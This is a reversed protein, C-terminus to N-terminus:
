LVLQADAQGLTPPKPTFFRAQGSWPGIGPPLVARARWRYPSDFGLTVPLQFQTTDITDTRVLAGADDTLEIEYFFTCARRVSRGCSRARFDAAREFHHRQQHAFHAQARHGESEFWGSGECLHQCALAGADVAHVGLVGADHRPVCPVVLDHGVQANSEGINSSLRPTTRPM